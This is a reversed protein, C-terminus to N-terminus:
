SPELILLGKRECLVLFDRNRYHLNQLRRVIPRAQEVRDLHLLARAWTELFLGEKSDLALPEITELAQTWATLARKQEGKQSWITGKMNYASSVLRHAERDNPNQELLSALLRLASDLEKVAPDLDGIAILGGALRLRSSALDRQWGSDTPDTAALEEMTSVYLQFKRLAREPAALALFARGLRANNSGLTRRWRSNSPDQEVLDSLIADAREFHTLATDIDGVTDLVTGVRNHSIALKYQWTKNSPDENTLREEIALGKRYPALAKGLRGQAELVRGISHHTTAVELQVNANGPDNAALAERIALTVGFEELAEPLNGLDRLVTGINTHAYALELQYDPNQPERAVLQESIALYRRFPKLADDLARRRWHVYGVWFFSQGLEFQWEINDPDRQVLAQSLNLSQQFVAMAAPLDGQRFRVDGIQYLIKARRNLEDDSLEDQPVAAFYEMAKTGVDDLVELRGLPELKRRLDGIMFSLLGEAQDRRQDAVGRAADAEGRARVALVALVSVVVLFVTAVAAIAASIKRRRQARELALRAAEAEERARREAERAVRREELTRLKEVVERASGPRREPERDVFSAIDEALLEDDVDRRWGPGLARRFDGVAVQYLMVGLAYVDAQVTAAKGESVEPAMYLHSGTVSSSGDPTVVETMGLVTIGKALLVQQDVVEGIGFDALKAKPRGGRGTTMLVNAPKVDKHLVGVSHAAALADAVQAIVELRDPLPVEAIGGQKDAWGILDGGAVYEEELYYPAQDFNWDHIRLIEERDGLSEKLLRFLTVERQLARLREADYCFKFVRREATSEQVALWVEGFGGEALRKELRWGSRRPVELGPGPRWGLTVEDGAVVARRVKATDAPPALPALGETGVEFIEVPEDVGEFLYPGHALWRLEGGSAEDAVAAERALDFAGQTLLTQKGGALSMTRAATPKALGEVELPKAGRAVDEPDNQRLFVEGLHIGARARLQVGLEVSLEALAQHYALAFGVADPPREFLLLFGDTKDIELGDFRPLLDRSVRDHRTAVEYARVDGLKEVLRTSDVLDTLLLTRIVSEAPSERTAASRSISM